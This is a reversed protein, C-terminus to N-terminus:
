RCCSFCLGWRLCSICSFGLSWCCVFCWVFIVWVVVVFSVESYYVLMMFGVGWVVVGVGLVFFGWLGFEM